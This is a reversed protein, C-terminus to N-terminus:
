RAGFLGPLLVELTTAFGSVDFKRDVALQPKLGEFLAVLVAAVSQPDVDERFEGRLQASRIGNAFASRVYKLQRRMLDAIDEDRVSEAHLSLGLKVVDMAGRGSFSSLLRGLVADLRAGGEGPESDSLEGLSERNMEDSTVFLQRVIEQKNEFHRYIGGVSLGSEACIDQVSTAGVGKRTFCKAAAGVIRERQAAMYEESVKPM